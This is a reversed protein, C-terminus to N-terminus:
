GRNVSRHRLLIASPFEALRFYAMLMVVLLLGRGSCFFAGFRRLALRTTLGSSRGNLLRTAIPIQGVIAPTTGISQNFQGDIAISNAPSSGSSGNATSSFPGFMAIVSPTECSANRAASDRSYRRVYRLTGFQAAIVSAIVVRCPSAISCGTSGTCARTASSSPSIMISKPSLSPCTAITRGPSHFTTLCDGTSNLLFLNVPSNGIGSHPPCICSSRWSNFTVSSVQCNAHPQSSAARRGLIGCGIRKNPPSCPVPFVVAAFVRMPRM